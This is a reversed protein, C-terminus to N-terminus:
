GRTGVLREKRFWRMIETIARGHNGVNFVVCGHRPSWGLGLAALQDTRAGDLAHAVAMVLHCPHLTTRMEERSYHCYGAPHNLLELARAVISDYYPSIKV